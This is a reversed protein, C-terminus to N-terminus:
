LGDYRGKGINRQVDRPKFVGRRIGIVILIGLVPLAFIISTVVLSGDSLTIGTACPVEFSVEPLSARAATGCFDNTGSLQDERVLRCEPCQEFYTPPALTPFIQRATHNPLVHFYDGEANRQITGAGPYIGFNNVRFEIPYAAREGLFWACGAWVLLAIAILVTRLKM